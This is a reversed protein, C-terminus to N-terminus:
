AVKAQEETAIGPVDHGAKVGRQALDLLCRKLDGHDRLFQYLADQDTIATVVKVYSVNAARGYNGKIPTPAVAPAPKPEVASEPAAQPRGMEAARAAAEEAERRERDIRAQEERQKRLKETEYTSMAAAIKDACAKADKVLPQWKADVAKSADLHPQKETTRKKDAQRSLENLRARLSQADDRAEDSDIKGFETLRAKASEIQDRLAELEDEPDANRGNASSPGEFAPADDWAGGATVRDYSEKTIPEQCVWTWIDIANAPRGNVLAVWKEGDHWIAVPVFPGNKVLRRRYFGAQPDGEHVPGFNGELANRWYTWDNSM